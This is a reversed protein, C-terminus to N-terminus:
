KGFNRKPSNVLPVNVFEWPMRNTVAKIWDYDGGVHNTIDAVGKHRAHLILCPLGIMGRRIYPGRPKPIGRRLFPVVTATDEKLHPLIKAAAGLIVTDDSDLFFFWGDNVAAKMANCILNYSCDGRPGLEDFHTVPTIGEALASDIARETSAERGKHTRILATIM